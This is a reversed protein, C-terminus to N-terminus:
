PLLDICNIPQKSGITTISIRALAATQLPSRGAVYLAHALRDMGAGVLPAVTRLCARLAVANTKGGHLVLNRQRYLRRFSSAAYHQVDLLAPSPNSLLRKMRLWAAKDSWTDFTLNEKKIIAEAVIKARMRNDAANALRPSLAPDGHLAYSLKTLEARPWSCAVLAALRDAAGGRDSPESLLAEIAAWGAAIGAIPSSSQLPALLEFAADMENEPGSTAYVLNERVLARVNVGRSRQIMKFPGKAGAVWAQRSYVIEGATAVHARAALNELVEFARDAAARADRASITLTMGGQQRLDVTSFNHAELWGSVQPAELWGDPRGFRPHPVAEFVILVDFQHPPAVALAHLESAIAALSKAPKEIRLRYDFWRHLYEANYDLDLVHSAIARATREPNPRTNPDGIANAWRALYHAQIEAILQELAYYDLSKPRMKPQLAQQLAKLNNRDGIGVDEAAGRLAIGVLSALSEDSLVGAQAAESAELIEKLALTLGPNWLGRHWPSGFAFFDLLRAATLNSWDNVADVL